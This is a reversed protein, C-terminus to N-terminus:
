RPGPLPSPMLQRLLSDQDTQHREDLRLAPLSDIPFPEQDLELDKGFRLILNAYYDLVLRQIEILKAAGQASASRAILGAETVVQELYIDQAHWLMAYELDLSLLNHLARQSLSKFDKKRFKEGKLYMSEIRKGFDNWNDIQNIIFHYAVSDTKYSAPLDIALPPVMPKQQKCAAFLLGVLLAAIMILRKAKM